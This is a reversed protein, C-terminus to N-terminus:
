NLDVTQEVKTDLFPEFDIIHGVVPPLFSQCQESFVMWARTGIKLQSLRKIWVYVEYQLRGIVKSILGLIDMKQSFYCSRCFALYNRALLRSAVSLM